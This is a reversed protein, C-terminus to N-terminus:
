SIRAVFGEIKQVIWRAYLTTNAEVKFYSGPFYNTGYGDSQTNWCYFISDTKELTGPELLLAFTGEVYETTDVPVTGSTNGNGDYLMTYTALTVEYAGISPPDAFALGMLDTTPTSSRTIGAHFAPSTADIALMNNPDLGLFLPDQVTETVDPSFPNDDLLYDYSGSTINHDHLFETIITDYLEISFIGNRMVNNYFEVRNITTYYFDLLLNCNEFSNNAIFIEDFAGNDSVYISYGDFSINRFSNGVFNLPKASYVSIAGWAYGGGDFKCNIVESPDTCIGAWEVDTNFAINYLSCGDFYCSSIEVITTQPNEGIIKVENATFDNWEDPEYITGFVYVIWGSQWAESPVTSFVNTLNTAAKERTDFPYTNSGVAEVYFIGSLPDLTWQAYVTFRTTIVFTDNPYYTTGTGSSTTNWSNFTYGFRALSGPELITATQGPDYYSGVPVPSGGNGNYTVSYDVKWVDNNLVGSSLGGIYYANNRFNVVAYNNRAPRQPTRSAQTITTFNIGDITRIVSTSFSGFIALQTGLDNIIYKQERAASITGVISWTSGNDISRRISGTNDSSGTGWCGTFIWLDGLFSAMIHQRLGQGFNATELTWTIGDTSSYVDSFFTANDYGGSLYMKNNHVCYGFQHRPSWAASATIQTWTVCDDSNWVDNYLTTSDGSGGFIWFKNDYFLFGHYGRSGWGPTATSLQWTPGDETYWIESSRTYLTQSTYGGSIYIRPTGVSTVVAQHAARDGWASNEVVRIWSDLLLDM